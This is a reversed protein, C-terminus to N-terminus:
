FKKAREWKAIARKIRDLLNHPDHPKQLHPGEECLDGAEKTVNAVTGTLIVELGPRNERIWRAFGFGDLKGEAQANVLVIEITMVESKVVLLAEETNGTELVRYGCERLYEAIPQRVLVDSEVMLLTPPPASAISESARM